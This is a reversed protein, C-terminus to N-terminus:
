GAAPPAPEPVPEPAPEPDPTAPAVTSELHTNLVKILEPDLLAKQVLPPLGLSRIAGDPVVGARRKAYRQFAILVKTPDVGAARSMEVLFALAPKSMAWREWEEATKRRLMVNMLATILPWFLLGLLISQHQLLFGLIADLKM